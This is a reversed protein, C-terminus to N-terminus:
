GDSAVRFVELKAAKGVGGCSVQSFENNVVCCGCCLRSPQLFLDDWCAPRRFGGGGGGGGVAGGACCWM